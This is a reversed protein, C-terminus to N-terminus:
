IKRRYRLMGGSELYPTLMEKLAIRARHLCSKVASVSLNTIQSIEDYSLGQNERLLFVERQNESLHLIANQVIQEEEAMELQEDPTNKDWLETPQCDAEEDVPITEVKRQRRIEELCLNRAIQYLWPSFRFSEDYQQAHRFVRLFTEQFIDEAKHYDSLMRLIFNFLPQQYRAFLIEFSSVEGRKVQSMLKEDSPQQSM